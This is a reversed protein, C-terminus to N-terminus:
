LFTFMLALIVIVVSIVFLANLSTGPVLTPLSTMGHCPGMTQIEHVSLSDSYATYAEGQTVLDDSDHVSFLDPNRYYFHFPGGEQPPFWMPSSVCMLDIRSKSLQPAKKTAELAALLALHRGVTNEKQVDSVKSHQPKGNRWAYFGKGIHKGTNGTAVLPELLRILHHCDHGSSNAQRALGLVYPLGVQYYLLWESCYLICL